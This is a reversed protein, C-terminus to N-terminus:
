ETKGELYGNDNTHILVHDATKTDTFITMEPIGSTLITVPFETTPESFLAIRIITQKWEGTTVLFIAKKATLISKMGVTIGMPPIAEYCGGFERQAYAVITDDNIVVPRTKSNKYEELSVKYYRSRPPENFAVMGRCGIGGQVTDIGGMEEILSDFYDLRELEPWHINEKPIQHKKDLLDYFGRQMTSRSSAFSTEDAKIPRFEWDLWEDMHFIHLNETSIDQENVISAFYRYQDLHGSPLIWKTLLGRRNHGLLENAMIEGIEKYLEEKENSIRINCKRDSNAELQEMPIKCWKLLDERKINTDIM